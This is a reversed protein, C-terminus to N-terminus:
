KYNDRRDRDYVTTMKAMDEALSGSLADKDLRWRWNNGGVTSPINIRATNDLGLWDQIPIIALDAGSQMATRIMGRPLDSLDRINMYEMAHEIYLGRTNDGWGKATDNDHTGPYVVTNPKYKYPRNERDGFPDFAFQLVKMGPYTSYELLEDVADSPAGLDEAIFRANPLARNIASIFAKGPGQRWQGEAPISGYPIAYYSEFGRFHDLRIVNYNGFGCRLREIWWEYGTKAMAEWDYLPNGWLQGYDSLADPPYGAVEDPLYDGSLRFLGPHAWVDASDLSVYIPIDGIIQVGRSNAYSLLARWQKDFQYQVFCHYGVDESLAKKTEHLTDPKRERLDEEWEVWPRNGRAARISSFLAYDEVWRRRSVYEDLLAQESFRSFAKRLVPERLSNITDHDVYKESSGWGVNLCEERDLLGEDCLTDLDIYYGAGAFASVSQYPSGSEDTPSLPLIQWYSQGAKQLFDVWRRATKGFSGVGYPSPLSTVPLLVGASRDFYHIDPSM